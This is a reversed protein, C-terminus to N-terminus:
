AERYKDVVDTAGKFDLKGKEILKDASEVSIIKYKLLVNLSDKNAETKDDKKQNKVCIDYVETISKYTDGVVNSLVPTKTMIMDSYKSTKVMTATTSILGLVFVVIFAIVYGEIVGFVAGLLKSPLGLILTANMFKSVVGTVKAIIGLITALIVLTLLYSIAEFILINFTEIGSFKGGLDFFPLNDYLLTSVPNKLYFALVIVLLTGVFTVVSNLVGNKFGVLASILLIAIIIYDVTNM